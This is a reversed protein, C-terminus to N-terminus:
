RNKIKKMYTAIYIRSGAEPSAAILVAAAKEVATYGPEKYDEMAAVILQDDAQNLTMVPASTDTM